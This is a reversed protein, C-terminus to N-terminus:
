PTQYVKSDLSAICGSLHVFGEFHTGIDWSQTHPFGQGKVTSGKLKPHKHLSDLM